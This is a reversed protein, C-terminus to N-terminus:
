VARQIDFAARKMECRKIRAASRKLVPEAIPCDRSGRQGIASCQWRIIGQKNRRLGREHRNRRLAIEYREDLQARQKARTEIQAFIFFEADHLAPRRKRGRLANPSEDGIVWIQRSCRQCLSTKSLHDGVCFRRHFHFHRHEHAQRTSMAPSCKRERFEAKGHTNGIAISLGRAYVRETVIEVPRSAIELDFVVAICHMRCRLLQEAIRPPAVDDLRKTYRAKRQSTSLHHVFRRELLENAFQIRHLANSIPGGRRLMLNGLPLETRPQEIDAPSFLNEALQVTSLAPCPPSGIIPAALLALKRSTAGNFAPVALSKQRPAGMHWEVNASGPKDPLLWEARASGINRPTSPARAVRSQCQWTKRAPLARAGGLIPM